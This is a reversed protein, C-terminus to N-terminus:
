FLSVMVGANIAFHTQYYGNFPTKWFLEPRLFITGDFDHKKKFDYGVGVAISPIFKPSGKTSIDVVEGNPLVEQDDGGTAFQHLAGFGLFHDIFIGSNFTACQGVQSRAFVSTHSGDKLFAGANASFLIQYMGSQFSTFGIGLNMGPHIFEEGYYGLFFRNKCEDEQASVVTAYIFFSLIFIYKIM